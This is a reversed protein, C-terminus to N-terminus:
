AFCHDHHFTFSLFLYQEVKQTALAMVGRVMGWTRHGIETTKATFVNVTENVNYDGDRVKQSFVSLLLLKPSFEKRGEEPNFFQGVAMSTAPPPRGSVTPSPAVSITLFRLGHM